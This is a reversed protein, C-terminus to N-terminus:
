WRRPPRPVPKRPRNPDDPITGGGRNRYVDQPLVASTRPQPPQDDRVPEREGGRSRGYMPYVPQDPNDDKPRYCYQRQISSFAKENPLKRRFYHKWCNEHNGEAIWKRATQKLTSFMDSESKALQKEWAALRLSFSIATVLNEEAKDLHHLFTYKAVMLDYADGCGRLGKGAADENADLTELAPRLKSEYQKFAAVTHYAVKPFLDNIKAAMETFIKKKSKLEEPSGYQLGLAVRELQFELLHYKAAKAETSRNYYYSSIKPAVTNVGKKLLDTQSIGQNVLEGTLIAQTDQREVVSKLLEWLGLDLNKDLKYSANVAGHGAGVAAGCFIRVAATVWYSVNENATARAAVNKKRHRSRRGLSPADHRKKLDTWFHYFCREAGESGFWDEAHLARSDDLDQRFKAITDSLYDSLAKVDVQSRDLEVFV